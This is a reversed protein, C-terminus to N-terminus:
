AISARRAIARLWMRRLFASGPYILRWYVGFQRRSLADTAYVRTETSLRCGGPKSEEILFNMAALAFGPARMNKFEQPTSHEAWKWGQPAIVVTGVVIERNPRDALLQFATGTAVDLIPEDPPPNLVSKPGPRGFRRLWTLSRFLLIEEATVSRVARYVRDAPASVRTWHYESFQHVPVFEDLQTSSSTVRMESQFLLQGLRSM